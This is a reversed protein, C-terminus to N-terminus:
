AFDESQIRELWEPYGFSAEASLTPPASSGLTHRATLILNEYLSAAQGFAEIGISWWRQGGVDIRTLELGCGEEPQEDVPVAKFSAQHMIQWKLLQRQKRVGVWTSVPTLSSTVQDTPRTLGFSWKRWSEVKGVAQQHLRVLGHVKHRQKIQLQGQRLKIGLGDGDALHLYYDTRATAETPRWVGGHFWTVFEPPVSGQHFWRVETTPIV